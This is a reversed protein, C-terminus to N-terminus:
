IRMALLLFYDEISARCYSLWNRIRFINIDGSALRVIFGDLSGIISLGSIINLQGLLLKM